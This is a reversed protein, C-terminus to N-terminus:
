RNQEIFLIKKRTYLGSIQGMTLAGPYKIKYDQERQRTPVINRSSVSDPFFIEDIQINLVESVSKVKWDLSVEHDITERKKATNM